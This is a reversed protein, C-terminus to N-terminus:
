NIKAYVKVDYLLFNKLNDLQDTNILDVGCNLLEQWVIKKEPSAWLRVKEGLRHAASVYACLHEREALPMPGTGIWNLMRSYRCSATKFFDRNITDTCAQLLDEDVFAIRDTEKRLLNVPKHGTLVVTIKGQKYEGNNCSSLLPRYKELLKRLAIYTSKSGSKIDIMLMIPYDPCTITRNTGNICDALPKLYLSDLTKHMRLGPLLHAVVLRGHRLYIDAEIHTFGDDLADYLPRAHWYDNHAYANPLSINQPYAKLSIFIPLLLIALLPIRRPTIIAPQM